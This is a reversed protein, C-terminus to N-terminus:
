KILVVSISIGGCTMFAVHCIDHNLAQMRLLLTLVIYLFYEINNYHLLNETVDISCFFDDESTVM